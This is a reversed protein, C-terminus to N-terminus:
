RGAGSRDCSAWTVARREALGACVREFITWLIERQRGGIRTKRGLRAVDRYAEWSDLQWSDIVDSWEAELFAM